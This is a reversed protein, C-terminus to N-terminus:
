GAMEKEQEAPREQRPEFVWDERGEQEGRVAEAAYRGGQAFADAFARDGPSEAEETLWGTIETHRDMAAEPDLGRELAELVEREGALAGERRAEIEREKVENERAQKIWLAEMETLMREHEAKEEETEERVEQEPRPVFPRDEVGPGDHRRAARDAEREAAEKAALDRETRLAAREKRTLYLHRGPNPDTDGSRPYETCEPCYRAGSQMKLAREKLRGGSWTRVLHWSGGHEKQVQLLNAGHSTGHQADRFELDETTGLYHRAHKFEPDLHYLYCISEPPNSGEHVFQPFDRGMIQRRGRM